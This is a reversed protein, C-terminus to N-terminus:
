AIRQLEASSLNPLLASAIRRAIDQQLEFINRHPADYRKRWVEAGTETDVLKSTVSLREPSRQTTGTVVYRVALQRGATRPDAGRFPLTSTRAVVTLDSIASLARVIDEVIGETFYSDSSEGASSFPLVALSPNPKSPSLQTGLRDPVLRFAQAIGNSRF